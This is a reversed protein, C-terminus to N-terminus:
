ISISLEVLMLGVWDVDQRCGECGLVQSARFFITQNERKDPLCGHLSVIESVELNWVPIDVAFAWIDCIDRRVIAHFISGKLFLTKWM